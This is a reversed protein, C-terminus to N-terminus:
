GAARLPDRRAHYEAVDRYIHIIQDLGSLSLAKTVANASAIVVVEGRGALRKKAGVLIGLGSSDMYRLGSFDFVLTQPARETAAHAAARLESVTALDLEGSAQIVPVGDWETVTL